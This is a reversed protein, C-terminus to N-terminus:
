HSHGNGDAHAHGHGNGNGNGHGNGVGALSAPLMPLMRGTQLLRGEAMAREAWDREKRIYSVETEQNVASYAMLDIMPDSRSEHALEMEQSDRLADYPCADM